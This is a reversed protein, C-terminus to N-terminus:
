QAKGMKVPIVIHQNDRILSVDVTTYPTAQRVRSLFEAPTRIPINDFSTIIDGKRIGALDAPGNPEVYDIRVGFTKTEPDNIRKMRSSEFGFMGKGEPRSNFAKELRNYEDRSITTLQTKHAAGDRLYLVEVTKGIPL